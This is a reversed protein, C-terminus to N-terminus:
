NLSPHQFRQNHNCVKRHRRENGDIKAKYIKLERVLLKFMEASNRGRSSIVKTMTFYVGGRRSINKARFDSQRINIYGSYSKISTLMTDKEVKKNKVHKDKHQVINRIPLM